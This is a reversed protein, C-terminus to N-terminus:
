ATSMRRLKAVSHRVAAVVGDPYLIAVAILMLGSIAFQYNSANGTNGGQLQTLIGGSALLGAVLAGSISAIGGLFCLALVALAGVVMFQQASLAPSQYALLAGGTGALAACVAFASLKTQTVDIGAAAAARENGRVALWRLGTPSRRLNAVALTALVFLIVAFIGFAARFNEDGTASFGLDIGFIEPRPIAGLGALSPSNFVLQEIAVAAAITAVALTMGRVRVAPLGLLLGIAITIAIALFPAVPFSLGQKTLKVTAFAAVGAFAYQALSIQGVYGTVVVSALGVFGAITSVVIALRWQADLQLLAVIAATAMVLSWAVPNRPTPSEPLRSEIMAARNPLKSGRWTIAVLIAIVPVAQSLGNNPLWDPLSKSQLQFWVLSGQTMGIALGAATTVAFSDLGGLLAAALAPVVLLSTETPVLVGSVGVILIVAGAGLLSALVWNFIGIRHPSIGTLIAGKEQEATATTALGFRTYSFALALLLAAVVAFGSLVFASTPIKASGIKIVGSPLMSTLKLSAAGSGIEKARLSMTSTLYLFIGLSAIVRALPPANRLPRFVAVYLLAGFFAALLLAISLAAAVTPRDLIHVKSPAGLIPLWLDGGRETSDVDYNRLGYFAYASYMGVAAHAINIVNSARFSLVLGLALAAIVAGGQLGTM